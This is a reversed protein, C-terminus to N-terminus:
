MGFGRNEWQFNLLQLHPAKSYLLFMFCQLQLEVTRVVSLCKPFTPKVICLWGDLNNVRDVFLSRM